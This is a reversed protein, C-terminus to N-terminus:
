QVASLRLLGVAPVPLRKVAPLVRARKVMEGRAARHPVYLRLTRYPHGSQAAGPPHGTLGPRTLENRAPPAAGLRALQSAQGPMDKQSCRSVCCPLISSHRARTVGLLLHLGGNGIGLAKTEAYADRPSMPANKKAPPVAHDRNEARGLVCSVMGPLNTTSYVATRVPVCDRM